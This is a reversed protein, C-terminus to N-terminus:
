FFIRATGSTRDNDPKVRCDWGKPDATGPSVLTRRGRENMRLLENVRQPRKSRLGEMAERMKQTNCDEKLHVNKCLYM